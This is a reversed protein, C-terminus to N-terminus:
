VKNKNRLIRWWKKQVLKGIWSHWHCYHYVDNDISCHYSEIHHAERGCICCYSM